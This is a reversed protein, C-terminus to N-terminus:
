QKGHHKQHIAGQPPAPVTADRPCDEEVENDNRQDSRLADLEVLAHTQTDQITNATKRRNVM